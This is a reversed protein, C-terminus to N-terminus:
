KLRVIMGVPQHDSYSFGTELTSVTKLEINPSLMFFDIITVPTQGKIYATKVSRNTPFEPDYAIQWDKPLIDKAIGPNITCAKFGNAVASSDYGVPNQNWDGGAIVYNGKTYEALILSTLLGLEKERMEVVNYFESNHLNILVLQKGNSVNFRSLIFCRDPMFLKKPWCYSSPYAYRETKEPRFRSFTLQGAIVKGMPHFVPVPVYNLQYNIAFANSFQPFSAQIRKV